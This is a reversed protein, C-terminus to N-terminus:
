IKEKWSVGELDKWDFESSFKLIERYLRLSEKRGEKKIKGKEKSRHM